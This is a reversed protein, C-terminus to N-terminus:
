EERIVCYVGRKDIKIIEKLFNLAKHFRACSLEVSCRTGGGGYGKEGLVV